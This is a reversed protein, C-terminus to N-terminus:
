RMISVCGIMFVGNLISFLVREGCPTKIGSHYWLQEPSVKALADLVKFIYDAANGQFLSDPLSYLLSEIHFSVIDLNNKTRLHKMVKIMPIFNAATRAPANKDVLHKQHFRAYGDEWQKKEPRYVRFPEQKDDYNGAKYVVPLIEIKIGLDVKICMSSDRFYIKGRYRGDQLLPAAITDFIEDRTWTKAGPSNSGPQWLTCLAVIDVDNITYIATAQKYSGQLFCKPSLLKAPGSPDEILSIITSHERSAQAIYSPSPNIRNFFFTFNKSFSNTAM